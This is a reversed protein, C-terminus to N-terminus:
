QREAMYDESVITIENTAIKEIKNVYLFAGGIIIVSFVILCIVEEIEKRLKLKKVTRKKM